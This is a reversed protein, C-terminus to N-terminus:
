LIIVFIRGMKGSYSSFFKRLFQLNSLVVSGWKEVNPKELFQLFSLLPWM